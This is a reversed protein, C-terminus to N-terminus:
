ADKVKTENDSREKNKWFSLLKTEIDTCEENKWFSLYLPIIIPILFM